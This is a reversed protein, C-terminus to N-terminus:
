IFDDLILLNNFLYLSLAASIVLCFEVKPRSVM